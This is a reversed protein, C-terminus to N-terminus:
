KVLVKNGNVINIGRVTKDMRRGDIAYVESKKASDTNGIIDEIGTADIEINKNLVFMCANGNISLGNETATIDMNVPTDSLALKGDKDMSAFKKAGINYLYSKGGEKLVTWCSGESEEDLSHTYEVNVLKGKDADYVTYNCGRADAIMYAQRSQLASEDMAVEKIHIFEGWGYGYAYSWYSGEPVYLPAHNYTYYSFVQNEYEDYENNYYPSPATNSLSVVTKFMPGKFFEYASSVVTGVFASCTTFADDEIHKLNQPFSIFTLSSCGAFADSGISVVSEPLTVETLATCCEFSSPGIHRTGEMIRCTTVSKDVVEVVCNGAYRINDTIPLSSCGSFADYEIHSLSQPLSVKTLNSMGSFAGYCITTIGENIILEKISFPDWTPYSEVMEGNGSLTLVGDNSLEWTINEGYSGSAVIEQAQAGMFTVMSLWVLLLIRRM